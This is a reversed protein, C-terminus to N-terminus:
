SRTLAQRATRLEAALEHAARTIDGAGLFVLTDGPEMAACVAGRLAALEAVFEVKQGTARVTEALMLGTVGAIPPESAAYIETLWLRDADRFCTAFQGLLAKTRTYRHPQFAVLLRRPKLEKFLRLTAEIEAPHHGYDDFVHFREDAFLEEQRRAAGAFDAIARAIAEPAFGLHHLLAVVAGANSLNKEGHQRLKFTGLPVGRHELEFASHTGASKQVPAQRRTIQYDAGAAFGYSITRARGAFMERLRPDDACYMLTGRVQRAFARFEDCVADIGAYHDLHDADVNLVIAHEPHFGRLTGDSEDAEVVFWPPPTDTASPGSWALRAQRGLQPVLAGIAHSPNASLNHLAFALLASTTTKGHMGSVCIGRQRHVLAALLTARRIIPITSQRAWALEPNAANVAPTFIALFPKAAEINGAAHGPHITAGRARLQRIEENEVVDSGAVRHGLDLLLHALGSMGCGGIGVLFVTAGPNVALLDSVQDPTLASM